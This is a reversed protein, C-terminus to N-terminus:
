FDGGMDERAQARASQEAQLTYADSNTFELFTKSGGQLSYDFEITHLLKDGSVGCFDDQIFALRNIKFPVGGVSHGQVVCSYNLSNARRINNEFKARNFSDDSNMDEEANFILTRSTRIESDNDSVGEQDTIEETTAEGTQTYPNLQSKATYSNYRDEYNKSLSSSLVNNQAGDIKHILNLGIRQTGGRLLLVNGDENSTVVISQKRAYPEIFDYVSDGVEATLIDDDTLPQITGAENIIDIGTINNGKLALKFVDIFDKQDEFGEGLVISSDYIDSTKDRGGFTISHESASKRVGLVDIFGTFIAVGDALVKIADNMKVPLQNQPNASSTAQFSGTFDRLSRSVSIEIADDYVVGNVEISLM